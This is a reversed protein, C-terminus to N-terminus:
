FLRSGEIKVVFFMMTLMLVMGCLTVLEVEVSSEWPLLLLVSRSEMESTRLVYEGGFGSHIM